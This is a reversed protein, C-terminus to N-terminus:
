WAPCIRVPCTNWSWITSERKSARMTPAVINPHVLQAAAEVERQFRKIAAENLTLAPPLVKLAVKRKMRAGPWFVEEMGGAGIQHEIVYDGLVM